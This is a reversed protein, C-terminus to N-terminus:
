LKKNEDLEQEIEEISSLVGESVQVLYAQHPHAPKDPYRYVLEESRIMKSLYRDRLYRPDRDLIKSLHTLQLADLACLKKILNKMEEENAREGLSAIEKKLEETLLPFGKPIADLGKFLPNIHPTVGESLPSIHPPLGEHLKQAGLVPKYYTGQGSGVMTLLGLDRLRRLATSAALTHTGNAAWSQEL